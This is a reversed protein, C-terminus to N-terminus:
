RNRTSLVYQLRYHRPDPRHLWHHWRWHWVALQQRHHQCLDRPGRPRRLRPRGPLAPDPLHLRAPVHHLYNYRRPPEPTNITQNSLIRRLNTPSLHPSCLESSSLPPRTQRQVPCFEWTPRYVLGVVPNSTLHQIPLHATLAVDAGSPLCSTM